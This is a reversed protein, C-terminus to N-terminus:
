KLVSIHTIKQYLSGNRSKKELNLDTILVKKLFIEKEKGQSAKKYSWKNHIVYYNNKYKGVYLMVHGPGSHYLLTEFPKLSNFIEKKNNQHIQIQRLNNMQNISSRPLNLGMTLFVHRILSSCDSGSEGGGWVYPHNLMKFTQKAINGPTLKLYKIATKKNKKIFGKRFKLRGMKDSTPTKVIYYDKDNKLLPLKNGKHIVTYTFMFNDSIYVPVKWELALVFKKLQIFQQIIKKQYVWAINKLLVWGHSHESQVYGWKRDKSVHFLTVVDGTYLITIELIDFPENDPKKMIRMDTPFKRLHTPRTVLCYRSKIIRPINKMGILKKMKNSIVPHRHRVNNSDYKIFHKIWALDKLIYRRVNYGSKNQPENLPHVMFGKIYVKRNLWRIEKASLIERDPNDLKNIWFNAKQVKWRINFSLPSTRDEISCHTLFFTILIILTIYKFHKM